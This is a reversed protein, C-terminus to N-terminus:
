VTASTVDGTVQLEGSFRVADGVDSNIEYSNLIASASLKYKGSASGEPFYAIAKSLGIIGQLYNHVTGDWPGELPVTADKLGAIYEKSADGFASVEHTDASQPLGASSVYASIDRETGGSDTIYFESDKGAVFAM